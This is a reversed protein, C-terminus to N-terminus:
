TLSYSAQGTIENRCCFPAKKGTKKGKETVRIGLQNKQLRYDPFFRTKGTTAFGTFLCKIQSSPKELL